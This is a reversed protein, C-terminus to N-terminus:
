AEFMERMRRNRAAIGTDMEAVAVDAEVAPAVPRGDPGPALAVPFPLCRATGTFDHLSAAVDFRVDCSGSAGGAWAPAAFAAAAVVAVALRDNWSLMEPREEGAPRFM